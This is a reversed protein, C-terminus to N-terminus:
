KMRWATRPSAGYLLTYLINKYRQDTDRKSMAYEICREIFKRRMKDAEKMRQLEQFTM